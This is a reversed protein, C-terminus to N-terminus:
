HRAACDKKQFIIITALSRDQDRAARSRRTAAWLFLGVLVECSTKWCNASANTYNYGALLQWAGFYLGIQAAFSCCARLIAYAHVRLSSDWSPLEVGCEIEEGDTDVASDAAVAVACCVRGEKHIGLKTLKRPSALATMTEWLSVLLRTFCTGNRWATLLIM